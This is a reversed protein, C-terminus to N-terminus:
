IEAATLQIYKIEVVTSLLIESYYVTDDFSYHCKSLQQVLESDM